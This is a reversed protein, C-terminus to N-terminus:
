GFQETRWAALHQLRESKNKNVAASKMLFSLQTENPSLMLQYTDKLM